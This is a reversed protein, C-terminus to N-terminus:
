RVPVHGAEKLKKRLTERVQASDQVLIREGIIYFAAEEWERVSYADPEIRKLADALLPYYAPTRLESLYACDVQKALVDLLDEKKQGNM